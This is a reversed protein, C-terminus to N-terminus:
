FNYSLSSSMGEGKSKRIGQLCDVQNEMHGHQFRCSQVCDQVMDLRWYDNFSFRLKFNRFDQIRFDVIASTKAFEKIKDSPGSIFACIFFSRPNEGRFESM